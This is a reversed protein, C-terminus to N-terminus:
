LVLTTEGDKTILQVLSGNPQRNKAQIWNCLLDAVFSLPTWASHDADPMYKRNMPTDLTQPLIAVVNSGKPLGSGEQALSAVLQHVAAKAMGYGIMGATGQKAPVAGTMVLQSNEAMHMAAIQACIVSSWVSQKWMAEASNILDSSAANGGAWGGAVCIIGSLKEAALIKTLDASVKNAQEQWADGVSLIINSNAEENAFLDVSIVRYGKTNFMKVCEGGLAGKGGYILVTNAFAAM